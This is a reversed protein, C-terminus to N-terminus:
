FRFSGLFLDARGDDTPMDIDQPFVEPRDISEYVRRNAYTVDLRDPIVVNACNVMAGSNDGHVHCVFFHRDLKALVRQAVTSFAEEVLRGLHRYEILIQSCQALLAPDAADLMAWEDGDIAIKLIVGAQAGGVRSQLVQDLSLGIDDTHFVDVGRDALAQDWSADGSRGLAIARTATAADDLTVYGGANARGLRIKGHKAVAFPQILRLIARVRAAAEPADSQAVVAQGGVVNQLRRLEEAQREIMDVAQALSTLIPQMSPATTESSRRSAPHSGPAALAPLDRAVVRQVANATTKSSQVVQTLMAQHTLLLKVAEDCFDSVSVSGSRLQKTVAHNATVLREIRLMRSGVLTQGDHDLGLHAQLVAVAARTDRGENLIVTLFDFLRRSFNRVNSFTRLIPM